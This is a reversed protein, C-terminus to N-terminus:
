GPRAKKIRRSARSAARLGYRPDLRASLNKGNAQRNTALYIRPRKGKHRVCEQTSHRWEHRCTGPTFGEASVIPPLSVRREITKGEGWLRKQELM